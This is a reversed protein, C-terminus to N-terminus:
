VAPSLTLNSTFDTLPYSEYTSAGRQKVLVVGAGVVRVVMVSVVAVEGV